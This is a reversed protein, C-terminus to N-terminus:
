AFPRFVAASSPKVTYRGAQLAQKGTGCGYTIKEEGRYIDWCDGGLWKFEFM